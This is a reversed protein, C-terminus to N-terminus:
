VLATNPDLGLLTRGYMEYVTSPMIVAHNAAGQIDRAFRQIPNSQKIVSGGSSAHVLTVAARCLAAAQGAAARIRARDAFAMTTGAEAAEWVERTAREALAKAAELNMAAEGAQLHTVAAAGQDTHGTYRIPKGKVYAVFHEVAGEAMGLMPGILFWAANPVFANRYLNSGALHTSAYRGETAAVGSLTRHAPVFENELVFSVSGTGAMSTTHWDDIMRAASKPVLAIRHDLFAGDGDLVPSGALLWNAGAYGSAFGFTGSFRYGGDVQTAKGAPGLQGAIVPEPGAFLEDHAAEPMLSTVWVLGNYIAAAWASSPCAKALEATVGLTVSVPVEFGGYRAPQLAKFLGAAQMAEVNEPHVRRLRETEAANRRLVDGLGRARDRLASRDFTGVALSAGDRTEDAVAM